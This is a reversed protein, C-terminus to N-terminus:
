LYGVLTSHKIVRSNPGYTVKAEVRVPKKANNGSCGYIALATIQYNVPTPLGNLGTTVSGSDLIQGTASSNQTLDNTNGAGVTADCVFAHPWTTPTSDAAAYQRLYGYAIDSANARNRDAASSSTITTFLLYLALIFITAVIITTLVEVTTFGAQRSSLKSM